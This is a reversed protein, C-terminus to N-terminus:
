RYHNSALAIGPKPENWRDLQMFGLAATLLARRRERSSREAPTGIPEAGM